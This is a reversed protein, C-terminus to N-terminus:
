GCFVLRGLAAKFHPALIRQPSFASFRSQNWQEQLM